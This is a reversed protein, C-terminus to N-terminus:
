KATVNVIKEVAAPDATLLGAAVLRSVLQRWNDDAAFVAAFLPLSDQVRGANVLSVAHWFKMELNDPALAEAKGYHLLAADVHNQELAHDGLNMHHYATNLTLLRRLEKLPTAHDEIHLDVLRDKWAKGTAKGRVVLIAASQKGRLDGGIAQAAELAALLREALSGQAARYATAMAEPVGDRVMLNAQVAFNDGAYQGAHQICQKGTFQAIRGRADLLAVQRVEPTPDAKLLADLAEQASAGARMRELGEAGYRVDIFSQTAVAGVGAEAWPVLAGVSFWHSQVAVGLQGTDPDRAVISYTHVPRLTSNAPIEGAHLGAQFFVLLIIVVNRM